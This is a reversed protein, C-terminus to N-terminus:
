AHCYGAVDCGGEFMDLQGDDTIAERLPRLAASLWVPDREMAARHENIVGEMEVAQAFSTPDNKRLEQWQRTTQFPCFYCSSKPPM